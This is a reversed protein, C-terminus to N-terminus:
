VARGRTWISIKSDQRTDLPQEPLHMQCLRASARWAFRWISAAITDALLRYPRGRCNCALIVSSACANARSDVNTGHASEWGGNSMGTFLATRFELNPSSTMSPISWEPLMPMASSYSFKKPARLVEVPNWERFRTQMKRCPVWSSDIGPCGTVPLYWYCFIAMQRGPLLSRDDSHQPYESAFNASWNSPFQRAMLTKKSGEGCAFRNYIGTGFCAADTAPYDLMVKSNEQVLAIYHFLRRLFQDGETLTTPIHLAPLLAGVPVIMLAKGSIGDQIPPIRKKM